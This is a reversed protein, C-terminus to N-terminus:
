GKTLGTVNGASGLIRGYHDFYAIRSHRPTFGFGNAPYVVPDVTVWGIQPIQAQVFVHAFLPGSLSGPPATVAIRTPIGISELLAGTAAAVCDCDGAGRGRGVGVGDLGLVLNALADPGLTLLERSVPDKVYRWRRVVDNFINAAQALYDKSGAMTALAAAHNRIGLHRSGAEIAQGILRITHRMQTLQDGPFRFRNIRHSTMKVLIITTMQRITLIM